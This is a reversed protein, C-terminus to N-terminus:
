LNLGKRVSDFVLFFFIEYSDNWKLHLFADHGVNPMPVLQNASIVEEMKILFSDIFDRPCNMDITKKHHDVSESIFAKINAFNRFAKQHPGPIYLSIKPFVNLM